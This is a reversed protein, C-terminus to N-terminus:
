DMGLLTKYYKVEAELNTLTILDVGTGNRYYIHRAKVFRAEADKLKQEPTKKKFLGMVLGKM